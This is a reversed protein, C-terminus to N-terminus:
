SKNNVGARSQGQVGSVNFDSKHLHDRALIIRADLRAFYLRRRLHCNNSVRRCNQWLRGGSLSKVRFFDEFRTAFFVDTHILCSISRNLSSMVIGM